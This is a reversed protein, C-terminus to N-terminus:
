AAGGLERDIAAWADASSVTPRELWGLTVHVTRGYQAVLAGDAGVEVRARESAGIIRQWDLSEVIRSACVSFWSQASAFQDGHSSHHRNSHLDPLM